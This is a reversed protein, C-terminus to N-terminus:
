SEQPLAMISQVKEIQIFKKYRFGYDGAIEKGAQALGHDQYVIEIFM